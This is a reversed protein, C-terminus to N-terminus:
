RYTSIRGPALTTSSRLILNPKIAVMPPSDGRFAPEAFDLLGRFAISAIQNQPMQVTTLAPIMCQASPIDDIGVASLDRPINISLEYAKRMLGIAMLDNSCFVATPRHSLSM